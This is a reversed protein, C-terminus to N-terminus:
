VNAKVFGIHKFQSVKEGNAGDMSVRKSFAYLVTGLYSLEQELTSMFFPAGGIMFSHNFAKVNEDEINNNGWQYSIDEFSGTPCLRGLIYCSVIFAIANARYEMETSDPIEDFTLAEIVSTRYSDPLDVVGADLQEPTARHQTLNIIM